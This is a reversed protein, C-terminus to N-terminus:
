SVVKGVLWGVLLFPFHFLFLLLFLFLLFLFFHKLVESYYGQLPVIYIWM